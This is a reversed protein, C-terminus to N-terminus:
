GHFDVKHCDACIRAKAMVTLGEPTKIILRRQSDYKYTFDKQAQWALKTPLADTIERLVLQPRKVEELWDEATATQHWKCRQVIELRIRVHPTMRRDYEEVVVCPCTRKEKWFNRTFGPPMTAPAAPTALATLAPVGIAAKILDRRNM